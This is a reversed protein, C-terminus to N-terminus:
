ASGCSSPASKLSGGLRTVQEGFCATVPQLQVHRFAALAEEGAKAPARSRDLRRGRHLLFLCLRSDMSQVTLM